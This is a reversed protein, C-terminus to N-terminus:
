RDVIIKDVLANSVYIQIFMYGTFKIILWNNNQYYM